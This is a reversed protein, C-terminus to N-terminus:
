KEDEKENEKEDEKIEEKNNKNISQYIYKIHNIYKKKTNPLEM